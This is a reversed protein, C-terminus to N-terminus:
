FIEIDVDKLDNAAVGYTAKYVFADGILTYGAQGNDRKRLIHPIRSGSLICVIDGPQTTSPALGMYGRKTLFLRSPHGSLMTSTYIMTPRIAEESFGIGTRLVRPTVWHSICLLLVRFWRVVKYTFSKCCIGAMHNHYDMKSLNRKLLIRNWFNRLVGHKGLEKFLRVVEHGHERALDLHLLTQYRAKSTDTARSWSGDFVFEHDWIPIRWVAEQLVRDYYTKRGLMRFYRFYYYYLVNLVFLTIEVLLFHSIYLPYQFHRRRPFNRSHQFYRSSKSMAQIERSISVIAEPGFHEDLEQSLRTSGIQDIEDFISGTLIISNPCTDLTGCSMGHDSLSPRVTSVGYPISLSNRTVFFWHRPRVIKVSWNPVWSPLDLQSYSPTSFNSSDELCSSDQGQCLSLIDLEGSSIVRRAVDIYTERPTKRYDAQIGLSKCDEEALSILAFIRDRADTCGIEQTNICYARMLVDFFKMQEGSKFRIPLMPERSHRMINHSLPLDDQSARRSSLSHSSICNVVRLGFWITYDPIRCLGIQFHCSRALASEQIIWIRYWWESALLSSTWWSVFHDIDSIVKASSHAEAKVRAIALTLHKLRICLNSNESWGLHEHHCLLPELPTWTSTDLKRTKKGFWREVKSDSITRLVCRHLVTVAQNDYETGPGLWVLVDRANSYIRSM